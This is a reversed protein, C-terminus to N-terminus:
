GCRPGGAGALGVVAFSMYCHSTVWNYFFLWDAPYDGGPIELTAVSSTPKWYCDPTGGRRESVLEWGNAPLRGPSCFDVTHECPAAIIGSAGTEPDRVDITCPPRLPDAPEYQFLRFHNGSRASSLLQWSPAGKPRIELTGSNSPIFAGVLLSFRVSKPAGGHRDQVERAGWAPGVHGYGLSSAVLDPLVGAVRKLAARQDATTAGLYQEFNSFSDYTHQDWV